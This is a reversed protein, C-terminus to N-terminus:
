LEEGTETIVTSCFEGGGKILRRQQDRRKCYCVVASGCAKVWVSYLWVPSETMLVCWVFGVLWGVFLFVGFCVFLM